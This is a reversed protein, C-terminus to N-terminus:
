QGNVIEVLKARALGARQKFVHRRVGLHGRATIYAMPRMDNSGKIPTGARMLLEDTTFKPNGWDQRILEVRRLTDARQDAACRRRYIVVRELDLAQLIRDGPARRGTLVDHIYAQSVKAKEAWKKQSGAQAVASRLIGRVEDDTM